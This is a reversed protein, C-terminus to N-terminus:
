RVLRRDGAALVLGLLGWFMVGGMGVLSNFSPMLLLVALAAARCAKVFFDEDPERLRLISAVILGLGALFLAAGPWGLSYFVDLIGSDFDKLANQNLVAASGTAGLGNGLPNALIRELMGAYFSGRAQYSADHDLESFTRFRAGLVQGTPEFVLLPVLLVALMLLAGALRAKFRFRLSAGYILIGVLWAVWASRVMSLLLAAYGVGVAPWRLWSARSFIVILGSLMLIAFPAPSNLTGFVRVLFPYPQGVVSMGSSIMWYRDWPLPIVFQLIGYLGSVLVTGMLAGGVVGRHEPFDQWGVALHFGFFVPAVWTLLGYTAPLLGSHVLGVLYAWAIAVIVLTVPVLLRRRLEPFRRVFTIASLATVLLPAVLLSSAPDWGAQYDVLRRIFPTLCWLWLTYGAYLPRQFWLLLLGLTVAVPVYLLRLLGGAGLVLLIGIALAAGTAVLLGVRPQGARSHQSARRVEAAYADSAELGQTTVASSAWLNTVVTSERDLPKMMPAEWAATAAAPEWEFQRLTPSELGRTAATSSEGRPSPTSM